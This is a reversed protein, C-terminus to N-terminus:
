GHRPVRLEVETGNGPSSAITVTGGLDRIRGEISQAVGLRGATRAASLRDPAIGPGDDRVSVIVHDYEDEVLLWARAHPGCHRRVNDLASIVAAEVEDVVAVPLPVATAPAAVSVTVSEHSRLRAALDVDPREGVPPEVKATVLTRLTVEQEGALRGLEAAEGGLEAGRRQVLALVQLVSDHISRALRERERTAAELQAARRLQQQAQVALRAVHGVITGTLLLLVTDNLMGDTVRGRVVLDTAIIALAAVAGMTRGKCVAWALVASAVWATPVSAAGHALADRPVAWLTALLCGATVVLDISLLPWGRRGPDAYASTAAATWLAMAAIIVWSRATPGYGGSDTLLLVVAYGLAAVRFVAVARWLPTDLGV